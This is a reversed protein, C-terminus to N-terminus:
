SNGALGAVPGTLLMHILPSGQLRVRSLIARGGVVKDIGRLEVVPSGTLHATLAVARVDQARLLGHSEGGIARSITGAITKELRAILHLMRPDIRPGFANCVVPAIGLEKTLLPPIVSGNQRSTTLEISQGCGFTKRSASQAAGRTVGHVPRIGVVLQFGSPRGRLRADSAVGFRPELVLDRFVGVVELFGLTGVTEVAVHRVRSVRQELGDAGVLDFGRAIFAQGTIPCGICAVQTMQILGQSPRAVVQKNLVPLLPVWQRGLLFAGRGPGEPHELAIRGLPHDSRPM